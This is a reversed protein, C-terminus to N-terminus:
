SDDMREVVAQQSEVDNRTGEEIIAKLEEGEHQTLIGAVDSPHPGGALRVLTEGMTEDDRKQAKVYAHFEQSVQISKKSM